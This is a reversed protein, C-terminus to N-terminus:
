TGRKRRKETEIEGRRGCAWWPRAKSPWIPVNTQLSEDFFPNPLSLLTEGHEGPGGSSDSPVRLWSGPPSWQFSKMQDVSLLVRASKESQKWFYPHLLRLQCSAYALLPGRIPQARRTRYSPAFPTDTRRHLPSSPFILLAWRCGSGAVKFFVARGKSGALEPQYSSASWSSWPFSLFSIFLPKLYSGNLSDAEFHWDSAPNGLFDVTFYPQFSEVM